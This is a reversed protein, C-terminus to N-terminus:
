EFVAVAALTGELYHIKAGLRISRELSSIDHSMGIRPHVISIIPYFGCDYVKQIFHERGTLNIYASCKSYNLKIPKLVDEVIGEKLLDDLITKIEKDKNFVERRCDVAIIHKQYKKMLDVQEECHQFGFIALANFKNINRKLTDTIIPLKGVNYGSTSCFHDRCFGPISTLAQELEKKFGQRWCHTNLTNRNLGLTKAIEAVSIGQKRMWSIQETLEETIIIKSMKGKEGSVFRLDVV